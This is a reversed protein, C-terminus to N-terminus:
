RPRVRNLYIGALVATAGIVLTATLHEGLLLIGM